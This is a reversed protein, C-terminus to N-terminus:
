REEYITLAERRVIPELHPDLRTCFDVKRGLIGALEDGYGFFRFGIGRAAGPKFDALVDVDSSVPDFDERLVSGFVSLRAIGRDRCFVAVRQPDFAIPLQKADTVM